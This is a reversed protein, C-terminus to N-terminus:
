DSWETASTVSGSSSASDGMKPRCVLGPRRILGLRWDGGRLMMGDGGMGAADVILRLGRGLM